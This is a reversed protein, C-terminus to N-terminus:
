SGGLGRLIHLFVSEFIAGEFPATMLPQSIRVPWSFFPPFMIKLLLESDKKGLFNHAWTAGFFSM